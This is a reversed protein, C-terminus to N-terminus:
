KQDCCTCSSSICNIEIALFLYYTGHVICYHNFSREKQHMEKYPQHIGLTQTKNIYVNNVYCCKQLLLKIPNKHKCTMRVNCCTNSIGICSRPTIQFKGVVSV